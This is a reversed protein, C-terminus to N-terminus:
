PIYVEVKGEDDDERGSCLPVYRVYRVISTWESGFCVGRGPM